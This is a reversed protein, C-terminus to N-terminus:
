LEVRWRNSPKAIEVFEITLGCGAIITGAVLHTCGFCVMAPNWTETVKCVKCPLAVDLRKIRQKIVKEM